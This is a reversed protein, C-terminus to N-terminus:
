NTDTGDVSRQVLTFFGRGPCMEESWTEGKSVVPDVHAIVFDNVITPKSILPVASRDLLNEQAAESLTMRYPDPSVAAVSQRGM